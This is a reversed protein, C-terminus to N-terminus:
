EDSVVDEFTIEDFIPDYSGGVVYEPALMCLPVGYYNLHVLKGTEVYREIALNYEWIRGDGDFRIIGDKCAATLLKILQM